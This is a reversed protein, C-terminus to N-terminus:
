AEKHGGCNIYSWVSSWKPYGEQTNVLSNLACYVKDGYVYRQVPDFFDGCKYDFDDMSPYLEWSVGYYGILNWGPMLKRGVPNFPGEKFLSGGITLVEEDLKEFIWYGWGPKIHKLDNLEGGDPTWVLWKGTESDYTWVSEVGELDKFVEDPNDDLLSFPVSIL